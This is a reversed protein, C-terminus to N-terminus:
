RRRGLIWGFTLAKSIPMDLSIPIDVKSMMNHVHKESCCFGTGQLIDIGANTMHCAKLFIGMQTQYSNVRQNRAYLLIMFSSFVKIEGGKKRLVEDESALAVLLKWVTPAENRVLEQMDGLATPLSELEKIDDSLDQMKRSGRLISDQDQVPVCCEQQCISIVRDLVCSPIDKDEMEPMWLSILEKSGLGIFGHRSDATEQNESWSRLFNRMTGFEEVLVDMVRKLKPGERALREQTFHHPAAEVAKCPRGARKSSTSM